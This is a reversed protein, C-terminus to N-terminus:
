HVIKLVRPVGVTGQSLYRIKDKMSVGLLLSTEATARSHCPFCLKRPNRLISKVKSRTVYGFSVGDM